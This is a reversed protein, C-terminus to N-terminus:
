GVARTRDWEKVVHNRSGGDWDIKELRNLKCGSQWDEKEGEVVSPGRQNETGLGTAMV